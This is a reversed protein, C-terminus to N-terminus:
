QPESFFSAHEKEFLPILVIIKLRNASFLSSPSPRTRRCAFTEQNKKELFFMRGETCNDAM